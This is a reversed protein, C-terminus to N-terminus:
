AAIKKVSTSKNYPLFVQNIWLHDHIEYQFFGNVENALSSISLLGQGERESLANKDSVRNKTTITLGDINFELLFNADTVHAEAMNKVINNLIRYFPVFDIIGGVQGKVKIIIKSNEEPFYNMILKQVSSKMQQSSTVQNKNSNLNKHNLRYHNQIVAQIIKIEKKLSVIESENLSDKQDLYLLIGHTQNILDHFFLSDKTTKKVESM